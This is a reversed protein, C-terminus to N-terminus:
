YTDRCVVSQFNIFWAAGAYSCGAKLVLHMSRSSCIQLRPFGGAELRHSPDLSGHWPGSILFLLSSSPCVVLAIELWCPAMLTSSPRRKVLATSSRRETSKFVLGRPEGYFHGTHLMARLTVEITKLVLGHWARPISLIVKISM